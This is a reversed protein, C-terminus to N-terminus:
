CESVGGLDDSVVQLDVVIASMVLVDLDVSGEDSCWQDIILGEEQLHVCGGIDLAFATADQVRRIHQDLGIGGLYLELSM